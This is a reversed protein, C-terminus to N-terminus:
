AITRPSTISHDLLDSEYSKSDRDRSHQRLGWCWSWCEVCELYCGDLRHLRIRLGAAVDGHLAAIAEDFLRVGELQKNCGCVVQIGSGDGASGRPDIGVVVFM